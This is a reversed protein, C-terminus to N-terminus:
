VMPFHVPQKALSVSNSEVVFKADGPLGGLYRFSYYRDWALSLTKKFAVHPDRPVSEYVVNSLNGSGGFDLLAVHYKKQYYTIEKSVLHGGLAQNYPQEWGTPQSPKYSTVLKSSAATRGGASRMADASAALVISPAVVAGALGCVVLIKGGQRSPRRSSRYRKGSGTM